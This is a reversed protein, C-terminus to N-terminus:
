VWGNRNENVHMRVNKSHIYDNYKNTEIKAKYLPMRLEQWRKYRECNMHCNVPEISRDPCDKCPAKDISMSM